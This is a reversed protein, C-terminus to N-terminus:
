SLCAPLRVHDGGAANGRDDDVCPLCTAAVKARLTFVPDMSGPVGCAMVEAMVARALFGM